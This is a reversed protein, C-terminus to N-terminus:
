CFSANISFCLPTQTSIFPLFHLVEGAGTCCVCNGGWGGWTGEKGVEAWLDTGRLISM